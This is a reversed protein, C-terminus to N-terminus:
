IDEGDITRADERAKDRVLEDRSYPSEDHTRTGFTRPAAPFIDVNEQQYLEHEPVGDTLWDLSPGNDRKAVNRQQAKLNPKTGYKRQTMANQERGTLKKAEGINM